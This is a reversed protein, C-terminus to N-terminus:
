REIRVWKMTGGVRLGTVWMSDAVIRFLVRAEHGLGMARPNKAAVGHTILTDGRIEYPGANAAFPGWIALLQEATPAPTPLSPRPWGRNNLLTLSYHRATFVYLGPAAPGVIPLGREYIDARQPAEVVEVVQWVGILAAAPTSRNTPESRALSGPRSACSVLVLCSAAFAVGRVTM